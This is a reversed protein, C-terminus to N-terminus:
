KCSKVIEEILKGIVIKNIKKRYLAQPHFTKFMKIDTYNLDMSIKNLNDIIKTETFEGINKRIFNNYNPGTLFVIINPKIIDIEKKIVQFHEFQIKNIETINGKGIRGIKNVNNWIFTSNNKKKQVEKKIRKFENWFAGRYKKFGGKLYFKKYVELSKSINGSFQSKHECEKCWSNTEQGFIMIRNNSNIQNEDVSLLFPNTSKKKRKSKLNYDKLVPSLKKFEERYLNELKTNM